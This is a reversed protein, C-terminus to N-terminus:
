GLLHGVAVNLGYGGAHFPQSLFGGATSFEDLRVNGTGEVREAVWLHGSDVTMSGPASLPGPLPVAEGKPGTAPVESIQSLFDHVIAAQAASIALTLCAALTAVLTCAAILASRASVALASDRTAAPLRSRQHSTKM